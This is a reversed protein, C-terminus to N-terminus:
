ESKKKSTSGGSCDTSGVAPWRQDVASLAMCSWHQRRANEAVEAITGLVQALQLCSRQLSQHAAGGGVDLVTAPPDPLHPLLQAHLVYTRVRGKVSAYAGEVFPPAALAAWPDQPVPLIM